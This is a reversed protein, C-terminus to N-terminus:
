LLGIARYVLPKTLLSNIQAKHLTPEFGVRAAVKGGWVAPYGADRAVPPCGASALDSTQLRPEMWCHQPTPILELDAPGRNLDSRPRWRPFVIIMRFSSLM